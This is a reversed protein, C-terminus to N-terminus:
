VRLDRGFAALLRENRERSGALGTVPPLDSSGYFRRWGRTPLMYLPTRREFESERRTREPFLNVAVEANIQPDRRVRHGGIATPLGPM